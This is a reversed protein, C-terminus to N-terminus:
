APMYGSIGVYKQEPFDNDYFQILDIIWTDNNDYVWSIAVKIICQYSATM